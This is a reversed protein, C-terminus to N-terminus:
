KHSWWRLLFNYILQIKTLIYTNQSQSTIQRDFFKLSFFIGSINAYLYLYKKCNKLNYATWVNM